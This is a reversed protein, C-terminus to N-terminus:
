INTEFKELNISFSNPSLSEKKYFNRGLLQDFFPPYDKNIMNLIFKEKYKIISM